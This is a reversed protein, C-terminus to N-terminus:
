YTISSIFLITKQSQSDSWVMLCFCIKFDIDRATNPQKVFRNKRQFQSIMGTMKLVIFAVNQNQPFIQALPAFRPKM